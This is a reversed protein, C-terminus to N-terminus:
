LPKRYTTYRMRPHFGVSEYLRLAGTPNEADVDLNASTLGADQMAHLSRVLLARALGRRRWPRRVGVSAVYGRRRNYVQNEEEAVNNLVMGAVQDGDWAVQWLSPDAFDPDAEFHQRSAESEDHEGWHDRFAEASAEWITRYQDRTAPRVELGIPMPAAPIDDLTDRVMAFSYRVPAYGHRELLIRNGADVDSSGSSLWQPAAGHHAAAIERLREENHAILAAGIGRRRWDPHIFCFSEYSRGGENLEAWYVRCYAVLRDDVEVLVVDRAPDCNTLNEYLARMGEVTGIEEVENAIAVANRVDVMAPYDDPGRL